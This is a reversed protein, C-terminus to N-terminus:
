MRGRGKKEYWLCQVRRENEKGSARHQGPNGRPLRQLEMAVPELPSASRTYETPVHMCTYLVCVHQVNPSSAPRTGRDATTGICEKKHLFDFQKDCLRANDRRTDVQNVM